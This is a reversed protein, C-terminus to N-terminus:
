GGQLSNYKKIFLDLFVKYDRLFNFMDVKILILFRCFNKVSNYLDFRACSIVISDICDIVYDLKLPRLSFNKCEEEYVFLIRKAIEQLSRRAVLHEEQLIWTLLFSFFQNVINLVELVTDESGKRVFVNILRSITAYALSNWYVCEGYVWNSSEFLLDNLKIQDELIKELLKLSEGKKADEM